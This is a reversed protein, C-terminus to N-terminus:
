RRTSSRGATAEPAGEGPRPRFGQPIHLPEGTELLTKLEAFIPFWGLTVAKYTETEGAFADHTLTLKCLEDRAEIEWTVRSLPDPSDAFRFSHVLRRGPEVELVEGDHVIRAGDRLRFPTGVEFSSDVRMGYYYQQTIEPDSLARWLEEATTRIYIVFVHRPKAKDEAPGTELAKKLESMAQTFPATYRSIWRDQIEQIPVPNLYHFTERGIHQTTILGGERLVRLM